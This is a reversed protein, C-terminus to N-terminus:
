RAPPRPESMVRMVPYAAGARFANDFFNWTVLGDDSQPELLYIIISGLPQNTRIIYSRAPIERRESMWRGVVRLERHDQFPRPSAIASDAVFTQAQAVLTATLSDITAGHLGLIRVVQTDSPALVYAIPPPAVLTPRFVDYVPMRVATYRGTRKRGKPVGAETRTSDDLREIAEAVVEV